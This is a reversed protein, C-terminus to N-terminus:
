GIAIQHARSRSIGFREALGDATYEGTAWLERIKADRAENNAKAKEKATGVSSYARSGGCTRCHSLKEKAEGNFVGCPCFWGQLTMGQAGCEKCKCTHPNYGERRYRLESM